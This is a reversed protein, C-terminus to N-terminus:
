HFFLLKKPLTGKKGVGVGWGCFFFILLRCLISSKKKNDKHTQKERTRQM